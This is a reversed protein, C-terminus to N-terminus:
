FKTQQGFDKSFPMKSFNLMEVEQLFISIFFPILIPVRFTTKTNMLFHKLKM